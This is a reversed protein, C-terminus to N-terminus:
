QKGYVAGRGGGKKMQGAALRFLLNVAFTILILVCGTGFAAEFSGEQMQLYLEVSLTGGPELAKGILNGINERINEGQRPM